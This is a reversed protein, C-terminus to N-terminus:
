AGRADCTKGSAASWSSVESRLNINEVSQQCYFNCVLSQLIYCIIHQVTFSLFMLLRNILYLPELNTSNRGREFSM